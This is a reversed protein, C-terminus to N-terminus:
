GTIFWVLSAALGVAGWAVTAAGFAMLREHLRTSADVARFAADDLGGTRDSWQTRPLAFINPADSM